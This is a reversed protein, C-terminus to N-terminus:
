LVKFNFKNVHHCVFVDFKENWDPHLCDTVYNTKLLRTSGVQCVVYPDTLNFAGDTDPLNEASKVHIELRGHFFPENGLPWYFYYILPQYMEKVGLIYMLWEVTVQETLISYPHFKCSLCENIIHVLTSIGCSLKISIGGHALLTM